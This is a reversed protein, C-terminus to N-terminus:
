GAAAALAEAFAEVSPWRDEFDPETARALVAAVASPVGAVRVPARKAETAEALGEPYPAAGTLLEAAIVGLAYVDTRVDLADARIQEPSMYVPTGAIVNPRSHVAGAVGFDIIKLVGEEDVIINTPKLDNHLV